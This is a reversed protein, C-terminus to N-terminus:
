VIVLSFSRGRSIVATEKQLRYGSVACTACRHIYRQVPVAAATPLKFHRTFAIADMLVQGHRRLLCEPLLGKDSNGKVHECSWGPDFRFNPVNM